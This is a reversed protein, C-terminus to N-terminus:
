CRRLRSDRHASFRGFPSDSMARWISSGRSRGRTAGRMRRRRSAASASRRSEVRRSGRRGERVLDEIAEDLHSALEDYLDRDAAHPRVLARLRAILIRPAAWMSPKM